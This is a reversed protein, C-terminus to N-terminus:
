LHRALKKKCSYAYIAMKMYLCIDRLSTKSQHQQLFAFLFIWGALPPLDDLFFLLSSPQMVSM